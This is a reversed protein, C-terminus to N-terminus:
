EPGVRAALSATALSADHRVSAKWAEKWLIHRVHGLEGCVIVRTPKDVYWASWPLRHTEVVLYGGIREKRM